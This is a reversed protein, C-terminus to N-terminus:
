HKPTAFNKRLVRETDNALNNLGLQRYAQALKSLAQQNATAGPYTKIAYMARDAAAIPANRRLYYDAVHVEYAALSDVLYRMRARADEAYKSNPFRTVLEKFAAFAERSGRPDRESLDQNSIRGLLGMDDNFNILGKLYYVYDVNPQNPHQRIFRECDSLAAATEGQKYHAFATELLSQQAYRGYPFRAELKEYYKIAKDYAGDNLADKAEQYLREVPWKATEDIQDPLLGCAVLALSLGLAVLLALGSLFRRAALSRM